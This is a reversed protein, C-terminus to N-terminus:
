PAGVSPVPCSRFFYGQSNLRDAKAVVIPAVELTTPLVSIIWFRLRPLQFSLNLTYRHRSLPKSM